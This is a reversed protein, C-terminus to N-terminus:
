SSSGSCVSDMDSVDASYRADLKRKTWADMTSTDTRQTPNINILRTTVVSNWAMTGLGIRQTMKRVTRNKLDLISKKNLYLVVKKDLDMITRKNLDLLIRRDEDMFTRKDPDLVLREDIDLYVGSSANMVFDDDSSDTLTSDPSLPPTSPTSPSPSSSSPMPLELDTDENIEQMQAELGLVMGRKNADSRGFCPGLVYKRFERFFVKLPEHCLHRKGDLIVKNTVSDNYNSFLQYVKGDFTIEVGYSPSGSVLKTSQCRCSFSLSSLIDSAERQHGPTSMTTM